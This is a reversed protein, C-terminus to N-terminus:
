PCRICLRTWACAKWTPWDIGSFLAIEEPTVARALGHSRDASRSDEAWGRLPGLVAPLTLAAGLLRRRDRFVSEPTIESGPIDDPKRILM